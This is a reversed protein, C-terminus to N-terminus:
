RLIRKLVPMRILGSEMIELGEVEVDIYGNDIIKKGIIKRDLNCKVRHEHRTSYLTLSDDSNIEANDFRIVKEVRKKYKLWSNSRGDAYLSNIKKLILGEAKQEKMIRLALDLDFWWNLIRFNENSYKELKLLYGKRKLLNMNGTITGNYDLIDFAYFTAPNSKSALSIKFKDNLHERSMLTTFDECCLEGDIVGTFSSIKLNQLEPYNKLIDVDRRNLAKVIKGKEFYLFIRTGDKKLEFVYKKTDIKSLDKITECLMVM